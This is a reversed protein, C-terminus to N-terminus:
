LPVRQLYSSSESVCGHKVLDKIPKCVDWERGYDHFGVVSALFSSDIVVSHVRELRGGDWGDPCHLNAGM